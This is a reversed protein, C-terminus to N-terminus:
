PHVAFVTGYGPRHTGGSTTTGYLYGNLEILGARPSAGAKGGAFSHILHWQGATTISFVTGANAPSGGAFTTGYLAGNAYTLAAYPQAGKTGDKFDHLVTESGTTTITFITGNNNRGGATTTGYLVGNLNTLRAAPQFGDNPSGHFPYLVHEDGTPLLSFVTGGNSKVNNLGGAFTTGYLTGSVATLGAEPVAGDTGGLFNHVLNKVGSTNMEFVTGCGENNCATGNGAGGHQTTGFLQGNVAILEGSPNAGDLGGKFSYLTHVAGNPAVRFVTGFGHAGGQLTVGYLVGNLTHLRGDPNAGDTGKFSHLVRAHGSTTVSFITGEGNSGGSYTTGYFGNGVKTLEAYPSAGDLNDFSFVVKYSSNLASSPSRSQSGQTVWPSLTSQSASCGALMAAVSSICFAHRARDFLM